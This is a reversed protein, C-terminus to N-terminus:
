GGIMNESLSSKIYVIYLLWESRIRDRLSSYAYTPAKRM